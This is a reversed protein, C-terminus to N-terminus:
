KRFIALLLRDGDDDTPEGEPHDIGGKQFHVSIRCGTDMDLLVDGIRDRDIERDAV